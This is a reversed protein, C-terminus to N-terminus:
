TAEPLLEILEELVAKQRGWGWDEYMPNLDSDLKLAQELYIRLLEAEEITLQLTIAKSIHM